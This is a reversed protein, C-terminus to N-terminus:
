PWAHKPYRGKLEKKVEPYGREWFSQLDRTIQVPRRAPSLLHLTLPVKGAILPTTKWEFVEQLRVALAPAEPDSYDIPIRAGTPVIMHTPALSDFRPRQEWSLLSLLAEKLDINALRGNTDHLFPALWEDLREVLAADSVDPWSNDLAHLFALRQRIQQTEKTWALVQVGRKRVHELLATELTQPDLHSLVAENLVIAGLTRLRTAVVSQRDEDFQVDTITEIQDAFHREVDALEIEAGIFIRSDTGADDLQAAVIYPASSLIQGEQMSAGRGNRLVFRPPRGPRRQAIRDPYALALLLGADVEVSTERTAASGVYGTGRPEAARRSMLSRLREAETRVRQLAGRDVRAGGRGRLADLRLRIDSDPITEGRLLDREELIAALDCALAGAGLEHGRVVMHALRPHLPMAAISRGHTTVNGASDLAGLESLLERAQAFAAPSPTDLWRLDDPRDVGRLALELALSALDAELIEPVGHPRLAAQEAETWLRYCVGPAVRGARGRRQAASAATVPITELRTMGTRPSFRPVRMVGSDVVVRVGEITLSTEAISTSLV